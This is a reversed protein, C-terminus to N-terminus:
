GRLVWFQGQFVEIHGRYVDWPGQELIYLTSFITLCSIRRKPNVLLGQPNPSVSSRMPDINGEFVLHASVYQTGKVLRRSPDIHVTQSLGEPSEWAQSPTRNDPSPYGPWGQWAALRPPLHFSMEVTAVYKWYRFSFFSVLLKQLNLIEHLFM